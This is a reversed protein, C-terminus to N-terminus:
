SRLGWLCTSYNSPMMKQRVCFPDKFLRYSIIDDVVVIQSASALRYQRIPADDEDSDDSNAKPAALEKYALLFSSSKMKRWLEKDRHLTSSAEALSKLLDLYKEPSQLVGLLRAPEACAMHAVELKTPENKAGCQFLFANADPGFDVFDFIDGYTTSTGLYARSPSIYHVSSRPKESRSSATRTVPVILADRLKVLSNQGLETIRSAFYGFLPKAAQQDQPPSSLLRNM